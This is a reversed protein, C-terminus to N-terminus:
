RAITEAPTLGPTTPCPKTVVHAGNKRSFWIEDGRAMKNVIEPHHSIIIAQKNNEDCVENLNDLWPQIERLSVFNDPEDIFVTSFIGARLAELVTYLVILQRQGDSLDMFDFDHDKNDIRFIATLKRSEGIERLSLQEFGPLVDALLAKAKYGIHPKEQLIHRYWQAFNETHGSLSRSESEAADKVVLPVPNILLQKLLEERFRVLPKNDEREAITPIVSRSWGAPFSTGEEAEKTNRNIRYLHADKGDFSFFVSEEWVLKERCIRRKNEQCSYEITIEYKYREDDILLSFGITQELRTDWRTLSNKQFIDDIHDGRILRQICRLADLVTTKGSGNDGLWLQFDGPEIRFNTLCRFNDIYIEKIM